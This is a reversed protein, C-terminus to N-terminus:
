FVGDLRWFFWVAYLFFVPLFMESSVVRVKIVSVTRTVGMWGESSRFYTSVLSRRSFVDIRGFSTTPSFGIVSVNRTVGM